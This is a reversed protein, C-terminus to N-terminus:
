SIEVELACSIAQEMTMTEGEAYATAYAEDGIMELVTVIDREVDEQEVPPRPDKISKRTKDAWAFLCVAREAQAEKVALSALGELTYVVGIVGGVEKFQHLSKIFTQQAQVIEGMRLFVYGLFVLSWYSTFTNGAQRCVSLSEELYTLGKPHDGIRYYLIGLNCLIESNDKLGLSEYLELGETLKRQALQYEGNRAALQGSVNLINAIGALHGLERNISEGEELYAKAQEYNRVVGTIFFWNTLVDSFGLKDDIARFLTLCELLRTEREAQDAVLSCRLYNCYAIGSQDGLEQYIAFSEEALAHTREANHLYVNFQGLVWLAKAKVDPQITDGSAFLKGLWSEGERVYGFLWFRWLAAMIQLGAEVDIKLAWGLAARINDLERELMQIWAAQDPKVLEQEAQEAVQRFYALHRAQFKEVQGAEALREQAYHRITELLRYRAEQGQERQVVVLSKNVLSTLLDLLDYADLGDSACVAEVANLNMGGAFVSLRPLLAQETESLLEWSWDVLARLTQQRPVVTRGSGTLLRFRDDLRASIQKTSLMNVRAAALEIALPIGDLQQCIQVLPEINDPTVQFIPLVATAREVFLRVAEYQHWQVWTETQLVQPISLPPVSFAFEGAIDLKERSNALIKLGSCAQLSLASFQAAAQIVHECNDLILLIEKDKLFDLLIDSIPRNSSERLGLTYAITQPLLAPDSIPVLDVLWAGDPFTDVLQQGMQISLATKGIGGAGMLMVLRNQALLEAIAEVETERGIFSTLRQPLNHNFPESKRDQKISQQPSVPPEKVIEGARIAEILSITETEPEIALEELLLQSLSTYHTLAEQRRGNQALIELLKRHAAEQLNDLALQQRVATEAANLDGIGLQYDVLRQLLAQIQRQYFARKSAAWEEFLESDPLYFDALFHGRYLDAAQQWEQPSRGNGALQEFQTVDLALNADPNLSVTLRDSLITPTNTDSSEIAKRLLFLTQRLSQQASKQPYDPWLLTMLSDRSHAQRGEVALYILLAQAKQATLQSLPREELHVAFPGLLSLALM